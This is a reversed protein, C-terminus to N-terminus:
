LFYCVIMLLFYDFASFLFRARVKYVKKINKIFVKKRKLLKKTLSLFLKWFLPLIETKRM